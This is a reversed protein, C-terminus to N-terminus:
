VPKSSQNWPETEPVRTRLTERRATGMLGERSQDLSRVQLVLFASCSSSSSSSSILMFYEFFQFQTNM